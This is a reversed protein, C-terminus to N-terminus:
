LTPHPPAVPAGDPDAAGANFAAQLTAVRAAPDEGLGRVVAAARAGAAAVARVQEPALLGGIAVVPRGAMRVWWRLNDLGQPRWPMAKTTTPWVPGCALHDIPLARARCLEWLSHSSLGLPLGSALLDRRGAEGLAQLDEQGLHVGDAGVARALAWHDNVILRAGATRALAVAQALTERLASWWRAEAGAPPKIRLQVTAVGAALVAQLRPLGDVLAYLGPALRSPRWAPVPAPAPGWGLRPLLTPDHWAGPAAQVPGAGQGVARAHRLAHTTAMKAVVAADPTTWGLALAAALSSAFTCGTGHQHPTQVRPGSLWGQALPHELWDHAQDRDERRDGGTLVVAQAGLAALARAQAPVDPPCAAGLLAAAEAANPTVVTARPLLWRRLADALGDAALAGGSSARLVPDVVLAVPARGRQADLWRALLVVQEASGLLGTKVVTPPLDRSLTDLQAQLMATSVAEVRALETTSQATLAAAVPCLHVGLADAARQDASLGAGGGSDLGAVSWVIPPATSM